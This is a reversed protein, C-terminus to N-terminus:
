AAVLKNAEQFLNSAAIPTGPAKKVLAVLAGWILRHTDHENLEEDTPDLAVFASRLAVEFKQIMFGKWIPQEEANLFSARGIESLIGTPAFKDDNGRYPKGNHMRCYVYRKPM